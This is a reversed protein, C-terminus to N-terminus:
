ENMEGITVFKFFSKYMPSALGEYDGVRRMYSFILENVVRPIMYITGDVDIPCPENNRATLMRLHEDMTLVRDEPM